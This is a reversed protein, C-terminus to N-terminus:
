KITILDELIFTPLTFFISFVTNAENCQEYQLINRLKETSTVFLPSCQAM